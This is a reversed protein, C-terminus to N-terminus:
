LNQFQLEYSGLVSTKNIRIHICLDVKGENVLAIGIGFHNSEGMKEEFKVPSLWGLTLYIRTRNYSCEVCNFVDLM